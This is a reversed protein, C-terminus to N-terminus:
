FIEILQDGSGVQFIELPHGGDGFALQHGMPLAQDDAGGALGALQELRHHIVLVPVLQLADRGKVVIQFNLGQAVVGEHEAVALCPALLVQPFEVTDDDAEALLQPFGDAGGAVDMEPLRLVLHVPVDQQRGLLERIGVLGQGDVELGGLLHQLFKLIQPLFLGVLHHDGVGTQHRILDLGELQQRRLQERGSQFVGLFIQVPQHPFLDM